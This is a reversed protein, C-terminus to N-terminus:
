RSLERVASEVDRASADDALPTGFRAAIRWGRPTRTYAFGLPVIPIAAASERAALRAITRYGTAFSLFGAEDRPQAAPPKGASDVLPYGEPFVVVLEGARLLNAAARIGSRVYRLREDRSFGGAAGITQERLVVPWRAWGCLREMWRRQGRDRTWDLAVVIHVPRQTARVIATGDLLHHYHRAVVLAAGSAPLHERGEFAIEVHQTRVIYEAVMRQGIAVFTSQAPAGNV